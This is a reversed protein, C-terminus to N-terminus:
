LMQITEISMNLNQAIEHTKMKYGRLTNVTDKLQKFMLNLLDKINLLGLQERGGYGEKSLSYLHEVMGLSIKESKPETAESKNFLISWASREMLYEQISQFFFYVGTLIGANITLTTQATKQVEVSNYTARDKRYLAAMLGHMYKIDNTQHYLKYYDLADIYEDALIDTTLINNNDINWLPGYYMGTAHHITPIHNRDIDLNISIRYKLLNGVMKLQAVEHPEGIEFPFHTTLRKRLEPSLVDLIEPDTYQPKFVFRIMSALIHLNDNIQQQDSENYRKRSRKYGTLVELLRLRADFFSLKGSQVQAIVGCVGIYQVPSLEAWKDPINILGTPTNVEIM